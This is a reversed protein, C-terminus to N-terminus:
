VVGETRKETMERREEGFGQTFKEKMRDRRRSRKKM